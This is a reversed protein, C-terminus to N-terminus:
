GRACGLARRREGRANAGFGSLSLAAGGVEGEFLELLDGVRGCGEVM